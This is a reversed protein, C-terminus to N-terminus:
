KLKPNVRLSQKWDLGSPLRNPSEICNGIWVGVSINRTYWYGFSSIDYAHAVTGEPAKEWDVQYPDPEATVSEHIAVHYQIPRIPRYYNRNSHNFGNYGTIYGIENQNSNNPIMEVKVMKEAESEECFEYGEPLLHTYDIECSNPKESHNLGLNARIADISKQIEDLQKKTNMNNKRKNVRNPKLHLNNINM